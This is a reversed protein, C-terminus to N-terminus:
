CCSVGAARAPAPGRRVGRAAGGSPLVAAVSGQREIGEVQQELWRRTAADSAVLAGDLPRVPHAALLRVEYGRDVLAVADDVTLLLRVQGAPDPVRDPDLAAVADLAASTAGPHVTAEFRVAPGSDGTGAPLAPDADM